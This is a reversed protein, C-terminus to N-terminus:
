VMEYMQFPKTAGAVWRRLLQAKENSKIRACRALKKPSRNIFRVRIRLPGAESHSPPLNRALTFGLVWDWSSRVGYAMEILLIGQKFYLPSRSGPSFLVSGVGM